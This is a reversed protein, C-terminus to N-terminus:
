LRRISDEHDCPVGFLVRWEALHTSCLGIEVASVHRDLAACVVCMVDLSVDAQPAPKERTM